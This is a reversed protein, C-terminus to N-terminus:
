GKTIVGMRSLLTLFDENTGENNLDNLANALHGTESGLVRDLEKKSEWVKNQWRSAQNFIQYARAFDAYTIVKPQELENIKKSSSEQKSRTKFCFGHHLIYDRSNLIEENDRKFQVPNEIKFYEGSRIVQSGKNSVSEYYLDIGEWIQNKDILPRVGAVFTGDFMKIDFKKVVSGSILITKITKLHELEEYMKKVSQSHLIYDTMSYQPNDNLYGELEKIKNSLFEEQSTM